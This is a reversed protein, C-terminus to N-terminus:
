AAVAAAIVDNAADLSEAERNVLQDAAIMTVDTIGIFGLVHKVYASTFDYSSGIPVGGSTIVVYAKKGELLGVPGNDTYRFTRGARAVQDIWAKFAAPVSFNYMPIGLVIADAAELEAILTDSMALAANQADSRNAAPTWSAALWADDIHPMGRSVDREVLKAGPNAALLKEILRASLKRSHSGDVRASSQVSLITQM